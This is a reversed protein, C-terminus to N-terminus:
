SRSRDGPTSQHTRVATFAKGNPLESHLAIGDDTRRHHICRMAFALGERFGSESTCPMWKTDM